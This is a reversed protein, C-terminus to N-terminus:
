KTAWLFNWNCHVRTLGLSDHSRPPLCTSWTSREKGAPGCEKQLGSDTWARLLSLSRLIEFTEQPESVETAENIVHNCGFEGHGPM